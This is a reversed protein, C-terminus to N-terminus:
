PTSSSSNQLETGHACQARHGASTSQGITNSWEPKDVFFPVDPHTHHLYVFLAICHNFVLFPVVVAAADGRTPAVPAHM